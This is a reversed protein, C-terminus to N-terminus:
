FFIYAGSYVIGCYPHMNKKIFNSIHRLNQISFIFFVAKESIKAPPCLDGDEVKWDV